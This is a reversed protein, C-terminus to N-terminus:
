PIVDHCVSDRWDLKQEPKTEGGEVTTAPVGYLRRKVHCPSGKLGAASTM